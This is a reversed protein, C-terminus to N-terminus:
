CRPFSNSSRRRPRRASNRKSGTTISSLVAAPTQRRGPPRDVRRRAELAAADAEKVLAVAGEIAATLAPYAKEMERELRRLEGIQTKRQLAVAANREAIAQKVLPTSAILDVVNEAAQRLPVM